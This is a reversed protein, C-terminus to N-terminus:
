ETATGNDHITHESKGEMKKWQSYNKCKGEQFLKCVVKIDGNIEACTSCTKENM